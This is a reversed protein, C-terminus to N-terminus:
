TTALSKTLQTMPGVVLEAMIPDPSSADISPYNFESIRTEPTTFEFDGTDSGKPSYRLYIAGGGATEWIARLAEWASSADETYVVRVRLSFPERKGFTVLGSDGDFTFAIGSMRTQPDPTVMNAFGSIDTWASGDTSYEVSANVASLQETTQAM